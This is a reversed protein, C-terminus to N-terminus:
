TANDRRAGTARLSGLQIPGTDWDYHWDRQRRDVHAGACGHYTTYVSVHGCRADDVRGAMQVIKKEHLEKLYMFHRGIAESEENTQNNVFDERPPYYMLLYRESM